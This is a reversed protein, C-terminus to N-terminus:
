KLGEKDYKRPTPDTCVVFDAGSNNTDVLYIRGNEEKAVKRDVSENTYGSVSSIVVYGADIENQLRKTNVDPDATAQKKLCEVGDVVWKKHMRRWRDGSTKGVRFCEPWDLPNETTEIIMVANPGSTTLNFELLSPYTNSVLPLMPVDPNGSGEMGKVEFDAGSLDVSTSASETHNRASNAAIVVSEGPQVPHDTGSGPFKCLQKLFISDPNETVPFYAPNASGDAIGLYKGDLYQVEDSNNFIEVYSDSSYNRGMDDKTGAYYIKSILLANLVAASLQLQLDQGSFIRQNMLSVGVNIRAEDKIAVPEKLMSKYQAGTIEMGTTINYIGPIVSDVSVLGRLNTEFEYSATGTMYVKQGSYYSGAKFEEPMIFEMLFPETEVPATRKCGLLAVLGLIIVVTKRM